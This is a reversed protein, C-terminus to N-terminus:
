YKTIRHEKYGYEGQSFLVKLNEIWILNQFNLIKDLGNIRPIILNNKILQYTVDPVFISSILPHAYKLHLPPPILLIVFFPHQYM